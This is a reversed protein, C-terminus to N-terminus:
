FSLTKQAQFTGNGNGLLFSMTGPTGTGAYVYTGYNAVVLDPKGDGNIDAVAVEQPRIGAAFTRATQLTGNGNGLLVGVSGNATPVETVVVDAKGDSNVD